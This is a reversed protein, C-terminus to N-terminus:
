HAVLEFVVGFGQGGSETTGFLAHATPHLGAVPVSGDSGKAEDFSEIDTETYAYGGGVPPTLRFVKGYGNSGNAGGGTTTGYFRGASDEVLSGAPEYAAFTEYGLFAGFAFLVHEGWAHAGHMPPSLEFVTGCGTIPTGNGNVGCGLYASGGLTTIGFLNGNRDLLLPGSPHKGNANARFAYLVRETWATGGPEPPILAFVTGYGNSSPNPAGGKNTVGYLIGFPGGILGGSPAAGDGNANTFAYLTSFTWTTSGPAPAALKFITGFGLGGAATEGVINGRADQYL